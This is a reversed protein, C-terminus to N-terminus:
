SITVIPLYVKAAPQYYIRIYDVLMPVGSTTSATPGGGFANPFGGGIAVDLILFFGHDTASNWTAPDVQSSDVRHYEVGDLYWRIQQPSISKDFEVRYTHFESQCGPCPHQGSGIGVPENCPGGPSTGCHLTSFVSSLGNVDEMIDIEGIGPWNLYNGRFPAGLMWFAPWYGAANVGSVDPQQISAEVAMMGNQPPQFDMCQTEIRGSTWNGGTDRIPKIALHGAGDQFVNATSDTMTEIEGTGWQAPCGSCAYGTGTDYLWRDSDVKSNTAGNFEDSWVLTWTNEKLSGTDPQACSTTIGVLFIILLIWSLLVPSQRFNRFIWHSM